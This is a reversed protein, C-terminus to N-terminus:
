IICACPARVACHQEKDRTTLRDDIYMVILVM